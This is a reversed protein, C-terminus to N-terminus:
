VTNEIKADRYRLRDRHDMDQEYNLDNFKIILKVMQRRMSRQEKELLTVRTLLQEKTSQDMDITFKKVRSQIPTGM